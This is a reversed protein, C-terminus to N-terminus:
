VSNTIPDSGSLRKDEIWLRDLDANSTILNSYPLLSSQLRNSLALDAQRVNRSSPLHPIPLSCNWDQSPVRIRHLFSRLPPRKGAVVTICVAGLPWSLSHPPSPAYSLSTKDFTSSGYAAPSGTIEGLNPPSSRLPASWLKSRHWKPRFSGYRCSLSGQAHHPWLLSLKRQKRPNKRLEM